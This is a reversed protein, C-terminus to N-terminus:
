KSAVIKYFGFVAGIIFLALVAYGYLCLDPYPKCVYEQVIVFAIFIGIVLILMSRVIEKAEM